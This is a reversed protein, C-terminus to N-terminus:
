RLTGVSLPSISICIDTSITNANMRYLTVSTGLLCESDPCEEVIATRGVTANHTVLVDGATAWGKTLQAAKDRKLRPCNEWDIQGIDSIQAATLFLVGERGFEAKSPYDSGHNGDAYEAIHNAAYLDDVTLYCWSPPLIPLLQTDILSAGTIKQKGQRRYGHPLPIMREYTTRANEVSDSQKTLKGTVALQLVAQKLADISAETTFLTHFHESLRQWSARFDAADTAQTLSDLLAQVLQAHAAEADAQDAELRDCLAM